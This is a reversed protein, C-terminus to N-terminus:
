GRCNDCRYPPMVGMGECEWFEPTYSPEPRVLLKAIRLSAATTSLPPSIPVKIDEHHGGIVWGCGFLSRLASLGGVRDVGTGGAPHVENMNLGILVDVETDPLSNFAESPIHPFFDRVPTLDPVHSTMIRPVGYGWITHVNGYMDVIDLLYIYSHVQKGQEDNIGEMHYVVEKKILNAAKAFGERILVRNSGRDWFVRCPDKSKKVKIDQLYYVTAEEEKVCDFMDASSSTLGASLVACYVNGSGHLLKSHDGTCKTAGVDAGCSNPKMKCDTRTHGWSTCRPCGKAKEVANARQSTSMDSFKKCQIFRDSPWTSGDRRKWTHQKTCVPCNGCSDRAKIKAEKFKRIDEDEELDDDKAKAVTLGYTKVPKKVSKDVDKTYVSLLALEQNAQEYARDLFTLMSNWHDGSKDFDLWRVKHRDPLACYVASLFEADHTLAVGMGLAELRTVINRVKIKLNILMEPDSKGECQISKLQNKLKKSILMKDGFRQSLISWASELSNVGYLQDRADKPICDRLKDLETEEPLNAKSVQSFWKRKFEAFELDDGNFRPPKTKELFVSERPRGVSASAQSSEVVPKTEPNRGKSKRVLLMQCSHLELRQEEMFTGFQTTLKENTYEPDTAVESLAMKTVVKEKLDVEIDKGLKLLINEYGTAIGAPMEQDDYGEIEAKLKVISSQLSNFKAKIEGVVLNVDVNNEVNTDEVDGGGAGDLGDHLLDSIEIYRKMQVDAWKDNHAFAVTEVGEEDTKVENFAEVTKAIKAITDDKYVRWNEDFKYYNTELSDLLGKYRSVKSATHAHKCLKVTIDFSGFSKLMEKDPHRTSMKFLVWFYEETGPCYEKKVM